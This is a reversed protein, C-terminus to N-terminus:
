VLVSSTHMMYLMSSATMQGGAGWTEMMNTIIDNIDSIDDDNNMNKNIDNSIDDNDSAKNDNNKSKKRQKFRNADNKDSLM